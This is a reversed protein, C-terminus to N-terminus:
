QPSEARYNELRATAQKKQTWYLSLLLSVLLQCPRHSCYMTGSKHPATVHVEYMNSYYDIQGVKFYM